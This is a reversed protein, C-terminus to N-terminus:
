KLNESLAKLAYVEIPRLMEYLQKATPKTKKGLAVLLAEMKAKADPSTLTTGSMITQSLWETSNKVCPANKDTAELTPCLALALFASNVRADTIKKEANIRATKEAELTTKALSLESKLSAIEQTLVVNGSVNKSFLLWAGFASLAYVVVLFLVIKKM